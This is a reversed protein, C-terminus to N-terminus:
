SRLDKKREDVDRRAEGRLFEVVTAACAMADAWIESGAFRLVPYGFSQLLRDRQKDRRAQEKTKEHWEHGDCEVVAHAEVHIEPPSEGPKPVLIAVTSFTLLFDVRYDGISAQPKLSIKDYADDLGIGWSFPWIQRPEQSYSECSISVHLGEYLSRVFLALFMHKEIPSETFWQTLYTLMDHVPWALLAGACMSTSQIADDKALDITPRLADPIDYFDGWGDVLKAMGKTFHKEFAEQDEEM